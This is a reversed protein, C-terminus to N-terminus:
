VTSAWSRPSITRSFTSTTGLFKMLYRAYVPFNRPKLSGGLMTGNAKMWGPPSWPSALIYLEPNHKRATRLQPLIYAKDHDISFRQLEPDPDGEDYSYMSAAYDSSGVCVRTVELGLESPHYLEHLFKERASADLQNIMYASADTLAGGFGLMDQYTRSPDLAIVDNSPAEAPQWKLAPEETFRKTDATQRVSIAGPQAWAPAAQSLLAAGGTMLGTFERRNIRQSM